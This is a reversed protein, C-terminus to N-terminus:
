PSAVYCFLLVCLKKVPYLSELHIFLMYPSSTLVFPNNIWFM